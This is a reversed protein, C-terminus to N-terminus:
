VDLFNPLASPVLDRLRQLDHLSIGFFDDGGLTPLDVSDLILLLVSKLRLFLHGNQRSTRPGRGHLLLAELLQQLSRPAWLLWLGIQTPKRCTRSLKENLKAVQTDGKESEYWVVIVVVVIGSGMLKSTVFAFEQCFNLLFDLARLLVPNM